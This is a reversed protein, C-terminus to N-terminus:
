FWWVREPTLCAHLPVDGLWVDTIQPVPPELSLGICLTESRCETLFRDYFGKGYGVRHGREDFALLPLLVADFAASAVETAGTPEPIGWRSEVLHTEPTLHYHRLTIGDAQVVPVAVQATPHEAWLWQIIPWTDPEQQRAAPLFVHVWRWQVVEFHQQLQRLLATSRRSVETAPLARRLALMQRRLEAKHM